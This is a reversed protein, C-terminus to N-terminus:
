YLMGYRARLMNWKKHHVSKQPMFLWIELGDKFRGKQEATDFNLGVWTHMINPIHKKGRLSPSILPNCM